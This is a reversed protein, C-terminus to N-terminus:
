YNWVLQASFIDVASDYYGTIGSYNIDSNSAFLHSYGVDLNMSKNLAYGVGLSVWKRTSDPTRPSRNQASPVPTHDIALGARIKLAPSYKHTLGLAYRMSNEFNQKSEIPVDMTVFPSTSVILDNLNIVLQDYASWETWTASALFSTQDTFAYDLALTATAPLTVDSTAVGKYAGGQVFEGDVSHKVQSRYALGINLSDAPQYMLGFNYGLDWSDGTIEVQSTDLIVDVMQANLGFGFSLQENIKLAVAPNLNVTKLDTLTAVSNGSWTKGYDLKQGFPVNVGFGFDLDAVKTKWYFNPVFGVTAADVSENGNANNFESKPSIVHGAVILQNNEVQTLGAPNFWMVSADEVSAAAGAYSLGQGSASQEILAFGSAQSTMPLLSAMICGSLIPKIWQTKRKM